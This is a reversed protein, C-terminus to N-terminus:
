LHLLHLLGEQGQSGQRPVAQLEEEWSLLIMIIIIIIIIMIMLPKKIDRVILTPTSLKKLFMLRHHLHHYLVKMEM